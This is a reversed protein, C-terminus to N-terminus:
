IHSSIAIPLVRHNKRFELKNNVLNHNKSVPNNDGFSKGLRFELLPPGEQDSFSFMLPSVERAYEHEDFQGSAPHSSGEQRFILPLGTKNIIWIPAGIFIEMGNGPFLQISVRLFLERNLLDVLKLKPEVIGSHGNPIRIQGSLQYNDLTLNICFSEKIDISYIEIEKSADIRGDAHGSIQYLVDCCLLNKLKLPPLINITHGPMSAGVDRAPYKDKKIESIVYFQSKNALYCSHIDQISDQNLCNVWLISHTCFGTEDYQQLQYRRFSGAEDNKIMGYIKHNSDSETYPKLYISSDVYRLPITIKQLPNVAMIASETENRLKMHLLFQKDTSNMVNLASRVTILKQASGVLAIEFVIRTKKSYQMDLNAYRFFTGVKDISIPGVLTWGHIQILIQHMNLKHSDLHRWKSQPGFDFHVTENHQASIWNCMLDQQTVETRTIGGAHSYFIKFLLPEGTLNKLAFPVFPHRQRINSTGTSDSINSRLFYDQTWNKRVLECLEILTTTINFKLIQKSNVLVHLTRLNGASLKSYSWNGCCEWPEIIPEWGSFRRNYYNSSMVTEVKGEYCTLPNSENSLDIKQEIKIQSLSFELLPVDADLCDDIICISVSNANFAVNSIKIAPNSSKAKQQSLWIAAENLNNNNIQMALWCDSHKFGMAVLPAIKDLDNVVTTSLQHTAVTHKKTQKPISHMMRSFLMVDNYSVRLFIQNQISIQFCNNRLEMNLTFPDIISLSSEMESGLICSFIELHNIDVSIPVINSHPKYSFVTTSKLIIANSDFQASNEVFIIESNTINLVLEYKQSEEHTVKPPIQNQAPSTFSSAIVHTRWGYNRDFAASMYPEENLFNKLRELYDLLAMIRMNNLLITYKSTDGRRRSHIEAQVTTKSAGDISPKLIYKFCNNLHPETSSDRADMLLIETSILDIDQSADSFSDIELNSKIFKICALNENANKCNQNKIPEALFITVNELEFNISLTTWVTLSSQTANVKTMSSLIELSENLNMQYNYYVDDITEGLNYNLFGRILKYQQLNILGNLESLTGKIRIDPCNHSVDSETNRMVDIKLHCKEKFISDGIKVICFSEVRLIKADEMSSRLVHKTEREGTLLNINVLEINMLDIIESYVDKEHNDVSLQLDNSYKFSNQLSFKGLDAIVLHNSNYSVPILIIPSDAHVELGIKQSMSGGIKGETTTSKIRNM